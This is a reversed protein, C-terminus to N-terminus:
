SNVMTQSKELWKNLEEATIFDGPRFPVQSDILGHELAFNLYRPFWWQQERNWAFGEFINTKSLEVYDKMIEEQIEFKEKWPLKGTATVLVKLAEIRRMNYRPYFPTNKVNIYGHVLGLMTAVNIDDYFRYGSAVDPYLKIPEFTIGDFRSMAMFVFFCEDKNALCKVLFDANKERLRMEKVVTSVVTGRSLYTTGIAEVQAFQFFSALIIALHLGGRLRLKQKIQKM